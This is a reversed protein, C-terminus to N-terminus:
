PEALCGDDFTLLSFPFPSWPTYSCLQVHSFESDAHLIPLAIEEAHIAGICAPDVQNSLDETARVNYKLQTGPLVSSASAAIFPVALIADTGTILSSVDALKSAEPYAANGADLAPDFRTAQVEDQVRAISDYHTAERATSDYLTAEPAEDQAPAPSDYLTTEPVEDQALATSDCRTVLPLEGQPRAIMMVSPAPEQTEAVSHLLESEPNTALALMATLNDVTLSVANGSRTGPLLCAPLSTTHFGAAQSRLGFAIVPPVAGAAPSGGKGRSEFSKAVRGPSGRTPLTRVCSPSTQREQYM